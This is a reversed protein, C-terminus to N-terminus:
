NIQTFNVKGRNHRILRDEPNSTSGVYYKKLKGPQQPLPESWLIYTYYMKHEPKRLFFAVAIMGHSIHLIGEQLPVPLTNSGKGTM